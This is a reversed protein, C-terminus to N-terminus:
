HREHAGASLCRRSSHSFLNRGPTDFPRPAFPFRAAHLRDDRSDVVDCGDGPIRLRVEVKVSLKQTQPEDLFGDIEVIGPGVM